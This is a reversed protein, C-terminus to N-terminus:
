GGLVKPDIYLRGKTTIKAKPHTISLANTFETYFIDPAAAKMVVRRFVSSTVAEMPALSFFPRQEQKAKEAFRNWYTSQTVNESGIM